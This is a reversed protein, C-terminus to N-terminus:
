IHILSLFLFMRLYEYYGKGDSNIADHWDNGPVGIYRFQVLAWATFVGLLVVVILSRPGVKYM